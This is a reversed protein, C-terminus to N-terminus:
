KELAKLIAALQKKIVANEKKLEDIQQSKKELEVVYLTLEEIKQLLTADMKAMDVGEAV